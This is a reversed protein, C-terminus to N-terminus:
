DFSRLGRLSTGGVSYMLDSDIVDLWRVLWGILRSPEPESFSCPRPINRADTSEREMSTTPGDKKRGQVQGSINPRGRVPLGVLRERGLYAREGYVLRQKTHRPRSRLTRGPRTSLCEMSDRTAARRDRCNSLRTHVPCTM